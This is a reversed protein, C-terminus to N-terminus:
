TVDRFLRIPDTMSAQRAPGGCAAVAIGLVLLCGGCYTTPDSPTVGYLFSRLYPASTWAIAIGIVSGGAAIAAGQVLILRAVDAPSAGVAMRVAIEYRRLAVSRSLVGYIGITSLLLALTGFAAVLITQFQRPELTAALRDQM